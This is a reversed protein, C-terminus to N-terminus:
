EIVVVLTAFTPCGDYIFQAHSSANRVCMHSRPTTGLSPSFEQIKGKPNNVPVGHIHAGDTFRSAWPAFGAIRSSGDSTYYMKAKKQQLVFIGLPTEKAHPPKYRGTTAPNTSRVLYHAPAQRELVVIHQYARDVIIVHTFTTTPPLLKIYKRPVYWDNEPSEVRGRWFKKGTMDSLAILTGDHAYLEPTLTVAQAYLPVSQYREVGLSDSVLKYSDRHWSRVLPAEGNLNKYNQLIGWQHPEAQLLEIRLLQKRIKDWQITRTTGQYKYTDELIYKDFTLDKDISIQDITLKHHDTVTDISHISGILLPEVVSQKDPQCALRLTFVFLLFLLASSTKM